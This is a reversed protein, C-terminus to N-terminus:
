SLFMGEQEFLKKSKKGMPAPMLGDDNM